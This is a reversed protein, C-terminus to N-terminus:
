ALSVAGFHNVTTAKSHLSAQGAGSSAQKAARFQQNAKLRSYTLGQKAQIAPVVVLLLVAACTIAHWPARPGRGSRRALARLNM